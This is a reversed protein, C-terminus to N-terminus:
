SSYVSCTPRQNGLNGARHSERHVIRGRNFHSALLAAILGHNRM